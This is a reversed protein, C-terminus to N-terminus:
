SSPLQVSGDDRAITYSIQPPMSPERKLRRFHKDTHWTLRKLMFPPASNRFMLEMGAAMRAVEQPWLLARKVPHSSVSQEKARLWGLFRPGTRSTSELTDYGARESSERCLVPDDTGFIIEAGITGFLTALGDNRYTESIQSKSQVIFSFHLGFGRAFGASKAIPPMAGITTFEDLMVHCQNQIDPDVGPMGTMNAEFLQLFFLRLLVSLRAIDSPMVSIYVTMRRRRLDHLDFDSHDTAAVLKPNFWMGMNEAVHNRTGSVVEQTGSVYSSIMDICTQSYPDGSTRRAEIMQALVPIADSRVFFRFVSGPNLAMGPTEAILAAIGYFADRARGQWFKEKGEVPPFFEYAIRHLKDLYDPAADSIDTLPNWCHTRGDGALPAFLFVPQNLRQERHAATIRHNEGKVDLVVLSDRYNFCNVVVYAVGKGAGPKAYLMVHETKPLMVIRSFLGTTQGLILCDGRPKRDYILGSAEGERRSAFKSTGHLPRGGTLMGTAALLRYSLIATALSSVGAGIMLWQNVFAQTSADPMSATLYGWFQWTPWGITDLTGLGWTTVYSAALTWFAGLLLTFAGLLGTKM